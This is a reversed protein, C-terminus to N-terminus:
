CTKWLKLSFVMLKKRERERERVCVCVFVQHVWQLEKRAFSCIGCNIERLCL